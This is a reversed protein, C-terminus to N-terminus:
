NCYLKFWGNLLKSYGILNHLMYIYIAWLVIVVMEKLISTSFIHDYVVLDSIETPHWSHQMHPCGLQDNCPIPAANLFIKGGTCPLPFCWIHHQHFDNAMVLWLSLIDVLFLKEHINNQINTYNHYCLFYSIYLLQVLLNWKVHLVNTCFFLHLQLLYLHKM